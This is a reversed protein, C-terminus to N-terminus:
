QAGQSCGWGKPEGAQDGTVGQEDPGEPGGAWSAEM